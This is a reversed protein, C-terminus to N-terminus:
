GAAAELGRRVAAQIHPPLTMGTLTQYLARADTKRGAAQLREACVLATDAVQERLGAPASPVFARLGDAARRSAIEGLAAAAAGVAQLDSDKLLAALARVSEPDRRTGLSQIVGVKARGTLKPLRERLAKDARRDPLSELATRTSTALQPDDLRAVLAPVSFASGILTLKSFVYEVAVALLGGDLAAVLQRELDGCAIKDNLAARVAEDIPLLAARSSGRDYTKLAALAADVAPTVPSTKDVVAAVMPKTSRTNPIQPM